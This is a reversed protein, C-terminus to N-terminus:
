NGILAFAAWDVPGRCIRADPSVQALADRQIRLQPTEIQRDAGLALIHDLYDVAEGVTLTRLWRQATNLAHIPTSDARLEYYRIATLAAVLDGVPWGASITGAFGAAHFANPFGIIEDPIEVAPTRASCAAIFAEGRSRSRLQSADSVSYLADPTVPNALLLCIEDDVPAGHCSTHFADAGAVAQGFGQRHGAEPARTADAIVSVAEAEAACWPLDGLPPAAVTVPRASSVTTSEVLHMGLLLYRVDFRDILATGDAFQAGHLPLLALEGVPVLVLETVTSDLVDIVPALYADSLWECVRQVTARIRGGSTHPNLSPLQHVAVVADRTADLTAPLDLAIITSSSVIIAQAPSEDFPALLYVVVQSPKLSRRIRAASPRDDLTEDLVVLDHWAADFRGRAAVIEGAVDHGGAALQEITELRRVAERFRAVAEPHTRELAGIAHGVRRQTDQLGLGRVLELEAM